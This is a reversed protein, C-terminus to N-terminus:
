VQDLKECIGDTFVFWWGYFCIVFYIFLSPYGSGYYDMMVSDWKSIPWFFRNLLIDNLYKVQQQLTPIQM